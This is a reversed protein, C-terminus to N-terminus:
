CTRGAGSSLRILRRRQNAPTMELGRCQKLDVHLRMASHLTSGAELIKWSFKSDALMVGRRFFQWARLGASHEYEDCHCSTYPKREVVMQRRSGTAQSTEHWKRPRRRQLRHCGRRSSSLGPQNLTNGRRTRPKLVSEWFSWM